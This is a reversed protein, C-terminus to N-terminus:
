KPELQMEPTNWTAKWASFLTEFNSVAPEYSKKLSDHVQNATVVAEEAPPPVSDYPAMPKVAMKTVGFHGPRGGRTAHPPVTGHPTGTHSASPATNPTTTHPAPGSVHTAPGATHPVSPSPTKHPAPAAPHPTAGAPKLPRPLSPAPQPHVVPIPPKGEPHGVPLPTPLEHKPHEPHDQEPMKKTDTNGPHESHKMFHGYIEGYGPVKGNGELAQRPHRLTNQAQM